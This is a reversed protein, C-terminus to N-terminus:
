RGTLWRIISGAILLALLIGGILAVIPFLDEFVPATTSAIDSIPHSPLPFM